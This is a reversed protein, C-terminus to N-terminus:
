LASPESSSGIMRADRLMQVIRAAIADVTTDDTDIVHDIGPMVPISVALRRAHDILGRKGPWRDPERRDIRTAVTRAAARLCVVLAHDAATADIVGRLDAATETTAAVLFLRRGAAAQLRLVAALQPVWQVADLLPSGWALQESEIAGYHVGEIELRTTLAELVSSKGAGPAGILVLARIV